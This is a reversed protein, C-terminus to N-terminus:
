KQMEWGSSVRIQDPGTRCEWPTPSSPRPVKICRYAPETAVTAPETAASVTASVKFDRVAVSSEVTALFVAKTDPVAFDPPLSLKRRDGKWEVVKVENCTCTIGDKRVACTVMTEHDPLLLRGRYTSENEGGRKGDVLELGSATAGNSELSLPWKVSRYPFTRDRSTDKGTLRRARLSVTYEEPPGNLWNCCAWTFRNALPGLRGCRDM